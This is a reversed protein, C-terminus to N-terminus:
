IYWAEVVEEKGRTQWILLLVHIVHVLRERPTDPVWRAPVAFAVM